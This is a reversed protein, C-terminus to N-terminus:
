EYNNVGGKLKKGVENGTPVEAGLHCYLKWYIINASWDNKKEEKTQLYAYFM